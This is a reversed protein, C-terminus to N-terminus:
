EPSSLFYYAEPLLAQLEPRFDEPLPDAFPALFEVQEGIRLALARAWQCDTIDEVLVHPVGETELYTLCLDEHGILVKQVTGQFDVQAHSTLSFSVLFSLLLTKMRLIYDGPLPARLVIRFIVAM